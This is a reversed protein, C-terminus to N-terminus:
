RCDQPVPVASQVRSERREVLVRQARQARIESNQSWELYTHNKDVIRGRLRRDKYSATFGQGDTDYKFATLPMELTAAPATTSLMLSIYVSDLPRASESDLAMPSPFNFTILITEPCEHRPMTRFWGSADTTPKCGTPVGEKFYDLPPNLYRRAAHQDGGLDRLVSPIEQYRARARELQDGCKGTSATDTSATDTGASATRGTAFALALCFSLGLVRYVWM